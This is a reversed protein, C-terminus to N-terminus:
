LKGHQVRKNIAVSFVFTNKNAVTSILVVTHNLLGKKIEEYLSYVRERRDVEGVLQWKNKQYTIKKIRASAPLFIPLEILLYQLIEKADSADQFDVVAKKQADINLFKQHVKASRQVCTDQLQLARQRQSNGEGVAQMLWWAASIELFLALVMVTALLSLCKTSLCRIGVTSYFM